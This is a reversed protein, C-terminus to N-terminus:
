CSGHSRSPACAESHIRACWGAKDDLCALIWQTGDDVVRWRENLRAVVKGGTVDDGPKSATVVESPQQPWAARTLWRPLFGKACL